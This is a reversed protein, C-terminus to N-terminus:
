HAASVIVLGGSKEFFEAGFKQPHECVFRGKAGDAHRQGKV